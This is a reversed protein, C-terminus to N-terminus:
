RDDSVVVEAAIEMPDFLNAIKEIDVTLIVMRTAALDNGWYAIEKACDEEFGRSNEDMQYETWAVMLEPYDGEFGKREGWLTHIKMKEM